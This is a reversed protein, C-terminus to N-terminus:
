HQSSSSSSGCTVAVTGKLASVARDAASTCYPMVPMRGPAALM